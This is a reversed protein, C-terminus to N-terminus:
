IDKPSFCIVFMKCFLIVPPKYYILSFYESTCVINSVYKLNQRKDKNEEIKQEKKTPKELCPSFM